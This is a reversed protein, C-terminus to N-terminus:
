RESGHCNKRWLSTASLAVLKKLCAGNSDGNFNDCTDTPHKGVYADAGKIHITNIATQIALRIEAATISEHLRPLCWARIDTWKAQQPINSNQWTPDSDDTTGCPVKSSASNLIGCACLVATALKKAGKNTSADACVAAYNGTSAGTLSNQDLNDAASNGEGYIAEALQRALEVDAKPKAAAVTYIKFATDTLRSIEHRITDLQEQTATKIGYLAQLNEATKATELYLVAEGWLNWKQKWIADQLDQPLQAAVKQPVM